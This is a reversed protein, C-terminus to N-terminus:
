PSFISMGVGFLLLLIWVLMSLAGLVIGVIAMTRDGSRADNGRTLVVIGSGIAVFGFVLSFLGCCWGFVLALVGFILSILAAANTGAGGQTAQEQALYVDTSVGPPLNVGFGGPPGQLPAGFGGPGQQAPHQQAPPQQATPQQATPQQAPPQQAPAYGPAQPAPAHGPHPAPRQPSPPGPPKFGGPHEPDDSM